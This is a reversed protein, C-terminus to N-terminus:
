HKVVKNIARILRYIDNRFDPDPRISIGNRFVLSKLTDPLDKELPMTSGQVFLPIVPIDRELATEIELRVFDSPNTLRSGKEAGETNLWNNGIVVLSVKCTSLVQNLHKRFDVGLPISDVDKFVNDVGFEQVLYDYIRGTIDISDNRRYSIFIKSAEKIKVQKTTVPNAKPVKSEQTSKSLSTKTRNRSWKYYIILVVVIVASILLAFFTLTDM